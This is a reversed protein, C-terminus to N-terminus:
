WLSSLVKEYAKSLRYKRGRNSFDVIQLFGAEVWNKCLQTSTRSKFGFLKGVQSATIIEFDQFLELTKRQRPDLSRVLKSQDKEGRSKAEDMRSLVNEFAIAMGEVFYKV